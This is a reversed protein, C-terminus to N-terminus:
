SDELSDEGHVYKETSGEKNRMEDKDELKYEEVYVAQQLEHGEFELYFHTTNLDGKPFSSRPSKAQIYRICAEEVEERTLTFKREKIGYFSMTEKM